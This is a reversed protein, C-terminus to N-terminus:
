LMKMGIRQLIQRMRSVGIIFIIVGSKVWVKIFISNLITWKGDSDDTEWQDFERCLIGMGLPATQQPSSQCDLFAQYTGWVRKTAGYDRVAGQLLYRELM